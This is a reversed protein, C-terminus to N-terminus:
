EIMKLQKAAVVASDVIVRELAINNAKAYTKAQKMKGKDSAFDKCGQLLLKEVQPANPGYKGSVQGILSDIMKWDIKTRLFFFWVIGITLLVGLAIWFVIWLTKTTKETM